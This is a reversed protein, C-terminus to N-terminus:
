RGIVETIPNGISGSPFQIKLLASVTPAIDTMNYAKNSEGHEIGWGMFILPIHSDYSNWVSHSTGTKAYSPLMSDHAVLQIDGSRQRNIGNIIRQKIPEPITAQQVKLVSVAYLDAPDKEIETVAFDVVDELKLQHEALLKRDFYIQYNDIANILNDVGFKEKLKLNIDKQITEGFFGTNIKHELLFGESHAGGHDASLFITYKGKGVKTDLYNFFEALDRDLRLYVDEVEISNPGYKHGAYDTSALNIALFDTIQDAGLQEGAISAEALKLTLTNGFPTYRINDKKTQYDKALNTYPFTPTKASGLLGEWSSNDPSSETYESIPLLTNWGKAVLQDPLNQANFSKIWQPLDNMYWTSTVFNGTSDDFWFAGNPTHGAPLISARDKLSVGIVKGQFNTALKLEDTVTTSWLNKPSHSGIKTNTTGVPKVNEDTTCYVNKGTEKDTWDNGAIGHIAPVSGTYISTHGIATVTPVYNIHVNNLSYGTNLLRKFGDNGFKDYFRYLYDWRMQDVVLGVMLKPRELQTNKNKQANITIVSLVTAAAFSIKRLM